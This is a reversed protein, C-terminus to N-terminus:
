QSVYEQVDWSSNRGQNSYYLDAENGVEIFKLTINKEIVAPSSFANMLAVTELYAATLNYERLNV